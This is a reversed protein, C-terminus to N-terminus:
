YNMILLENGMITSKSEFRCNSYMEKIGEFNYYSLLFKGDINELIGSLEKHKNGKFDHNIYYDEKGKYPPDLYFFTEKSDYLEIIDKYDLNKVESLSDLNPKYDLYKLRFIQFESPGRWSYEGVRTPDSCSLVIVWNIAMELNTMKNDLISDVCVRYIEEDLDIKSLRKIFEQKKLHNFLNYNLFNIDNYIFKDFSFDDLDMSLFIGMLGGFPEVYTKMDSPIHPIIFNSFKSKEGLYPLIM